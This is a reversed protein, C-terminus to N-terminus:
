LDPYIGSLKNYGDHDEDCNMNYPNLHVEVKYVPKVERFGISGRIFNKMSGTTDDNNTELRVGIGRKM